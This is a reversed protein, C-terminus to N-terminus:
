PAVSFAASALFEQRAIGASLRGGEPGVGGGEEEKERRREEGEM